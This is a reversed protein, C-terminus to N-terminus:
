EADRLERIAAMGIDLTGHRRRIQERIRDMSESARRMELPDRIGKAAHEVARQMAAMAEVTFAPLKHVTAMSTRGRFARVMDKWEHRSSTAITESSAYSLDIAVTGM